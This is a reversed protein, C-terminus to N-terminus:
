SAAAKHSAYACMSTAHLRDQPALRVGCQESSAMCCIHLAFISCEALPLTVSLPSTLSRAHERGAAAMSSTRARMKVTCVRERSALRVRCQESSHWMCSLPPDRVLSLPLSSHGTHCPVTLCPVPVHWQVQHSTSPPHHGRGRLRRGHVGCEDVLAGLLCTAARDRKPRTCAIDRGNRALIRADGPGVVITVFRCEVQTVALMESHSSLATSDIGCWSIRRRCHPEVSHLTRVPIASGLSECRCSRSVLLLVAM